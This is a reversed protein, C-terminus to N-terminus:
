RAGEDPLSRGSAAYDAVSGWWKCLLEGCEPNAPLRWRHSFCLSGKEIFGALTKTNQIAAHNVVSGDHGIRILLPMRSRVDLYEAFMIVQSNWHTRKAFPSNSIVAGTEDMELEFYVTLGSCM